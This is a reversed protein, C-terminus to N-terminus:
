SNQFNRYLIFGAYELRKEVSAENKHMFERILRLKRFTLIGKDSNKNFNKSRYYRENM